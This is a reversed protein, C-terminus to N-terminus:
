THSELKTLVSKLKKEEIGFDRLAHLTKEVYDKSSGSSGHGQEVYKAIDDVELKGAYQSHQRNVVYTLALETRDQDRLRVERIVERYVGSLLERKRVYNLVDLWHSDEIRYVVGNCTGGMDLGLVLGPKETTGRYHNSFICLSRHYGSLKAMAREVFGFGPNWILSGYAFIYRCNEADEALEAEPHFDEAM